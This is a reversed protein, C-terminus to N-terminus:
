GVAYFLLGLATVGGVVLVFFGISRMVDQM